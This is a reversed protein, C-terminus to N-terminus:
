QVQENNGPFLVDAIPAPAGALVDAIQVAAGRFENPSITAKPRYFHRSKIPEVPPTASGYGLTPLTYASGFSGYGRTVVTSISM